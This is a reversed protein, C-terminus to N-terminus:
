KYYPSARFYKKLNHWEHCVLNNIYKLNLLSKPIKIKKDCHLDELYDLTKPIKILNKCNHCSIYKQFEV